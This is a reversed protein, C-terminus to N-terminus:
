EIVRDARLLLEKPVTLNLAKAAKLNVYLEFKAPQEVPLETPKAGHLIRDVSLAARRLLDGVEVGYSILGGDEVITGSYYIAPVKSRATLAVIARRHVGMFSDTMVILGSDKKRGLGAILQEIEIESNVTATLTKVGFKPAVANLPQLYYEAYPATRPNFMVAVRTVRPAIEKLLQLWKEALSSEVNIFGTINGGPHALTQVFGSGVPDSVVAFVIPITRTARQLAATSPTSVSLIVDPRLAVLEKALESARNVDAVTWRVDIKLNRGEAWGLDALREKFVVFRLQWEPDNEAFGILAGIRRVATPQAFSSLPTAVLASLALLFKRRQAMNM